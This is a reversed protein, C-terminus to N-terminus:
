VNSEPDRRHGLRILVEETSRDIASDAASRAFDQLETAKKSCSDALKFSKRTLRKWLAIGGVIAAAVGLISTISGLFGFTVQHGIPALGELPTVLKNEKLSMNLDHVLLPLEGMSFNFSDMDITTFGAEIDHQRTPAFQFTNSTLVCGNPVHVEEDEGFIKWTRTAEKEDCVLTVSTTGDTPVVLLSNHGTVHVGASQVYPTFACLKKM